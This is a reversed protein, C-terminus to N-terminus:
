ENLDEKMMNLAKKYVAWESVEHMKRLQNRFDSWDGWRM